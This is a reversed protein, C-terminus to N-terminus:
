AGGTQARGLAAMLNRFAEGIPDDGEAGGAVVQDFLKRAIDLDESVAAVAADPDSAALIRDGNYLVMDAVILTALGQPDQESMRRDGEARLAEAAQDEVQPGVGAEPMGLYSRLKAPLMDGLHHIEVYDDAGYLRTPSRKYSTRRYVSAVLIVIPAGRPPDAGALSKALETLEYGPVHPMAVDVVLADFARQQLATRAVRGDSATDVDFGYLQLVRRVARTIGPREHALLVTPGDSV